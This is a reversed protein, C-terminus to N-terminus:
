ILQEIQCDVLIPEKKLLSLACEQNGNSGKTEEYGRKDM